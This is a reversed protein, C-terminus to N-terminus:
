WHLFDIKPYDGNVITIKGASEHWIILHIQYYSRVPFASQPPFCAYDGFVLHDESYWMMYPDRCYMVIRVPDNSAWPCSRGPWWYLYKETSEPFYTGRIGGYSYSPGKFIPSMCYGRSEWYNDLAIKCTLEWPSQGKSSVISLPKIVPLYIKSAFKTFQILRRRQELQAPTKADKRARPVIIYSGNAKKRVYYPGLPGVLPSTLGGNVWM